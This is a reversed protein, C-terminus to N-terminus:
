GKFFRSVLSDSLRKEAELGKGILNNLEYPDEDLDFLLRAKKDEVTMTLKYKGDVIMKWTYKEASGNSLEVPAYNECFVPRVEASKGFLIPSFDYGELHKEQPLGHLSLLAPYADVASVPINCTQGKVGGPVRAIFPIGCSREHPLCKNKLGHSGQMDGHDSSFFINTQDLIGLEDLASLIKGVCADIHSVM